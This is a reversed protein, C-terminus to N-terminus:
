THVIGYDNGSGGLQPLQNGLLDACDKRLEGVEPTLAFGDFRIAHGGFSRGTEKGFHPDGGRPGRDVIENILLGNGVAFEAPARDERFLFKKRPDVGTRRARRICPGLSRRTNGSTSCVALLLGSSPYLVLLGRCESHTRLPM